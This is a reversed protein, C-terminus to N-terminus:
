LSLFLYLTWLSRTMQGIILRDNLPILTCQRFPIVLIVGSVTKFELSLAPNKKKM